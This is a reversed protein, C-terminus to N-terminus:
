RRPQSLQKIWRQQQRSAYWCHLALASGFGAFTALYSLPSVFRFVMAFGLGVLVFKGYEGWKFSRIIRPLARSGRYRFAYHTFYTNPLIFIVAGLGFSYASVEGYFIMLPLLIPTLIAIQLLM